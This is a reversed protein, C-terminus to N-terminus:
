ANTVPITAPNAEIIGLKVLANGVRSQFNLEEWMKLNAEADPDLAQTSQDAKKNLYLRECTQEIGVMANIYSLDADPTAIAEVAEVPKAFSKIAEELEIQNKPLPKILRIDAWSGDDYDVVLSKNVDDFHRITYKLDM